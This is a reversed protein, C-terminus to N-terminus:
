CAHWCQTESTVCLKPKNRPQKYYEDIESVEYTEGVDQLYRANGLM